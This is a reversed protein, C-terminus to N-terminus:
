KTTMAYVGDWDDPIERRQTEQVIRQYVCSPNDMTASDSGPQHRESAASRRFSELAEEWRRNFYHDLGTEFEVLGTLIETDIEDQWGVLEHIPVPRERGKVRIRGLPRFGMARGGAKECALRTADTVMTYVGWSKAGSEMRAALNVDDGMMTYSFRSRSGMNGIMCEGTNLGIRTRMRHVRTPWKAGEEEWKKRLEALEAQVHIASACARYAHDALRLPAGFMAVVADGVYKDLTGREAQIIDTCTTLYENLLEVLQPASLQESFASFNQIDSFYATIEATAGGLEPSAEAEIMQKVVVPSLYSGFMGRIESKARQEALVRHTILVLQLLVFGGLPAVVPIWWSGVEWGRQALWLHAGAVVVLYAVSVWVAARRVLLAGVLGLLTALGWVWIRRVPNVFDSELINNLANAHLFVLPSLDSRPTPGSDTAFEGILVMRDTLPVPDRADPNEVIHKQHLDILVDYYEVVPMERGLAEGPQIPEYRYNILMAGEHDIPIRRGGGKGELIVAEGLRVEVDDVAVDWYAMAAQLALSPIVVEGVRVVLPMRRVIGGAGRPADVSGMLGQERLGPFPMELFSDGYIDDPNGVIRGLARTNGLKGTNDGTPAGYTVAAFIVDIGQEVLHNTSTAFDQDSDGDLPVGNVDVRNGYLIDWVLVAPKEEALLMQLQAHWARKFPWLEINKTSRDGIGIVLIREGPPPQDRDARLQTRWDLTKWEIAEVWRTEALWAALVFCVIPAVYIWDDRQPPRLKM